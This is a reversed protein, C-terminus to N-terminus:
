AVVSAWTFGPSVTVTIPPGTPRIAAYEASILPADRTNRTSRTGGPQPQSLLDASYRDVQVVSVRGLLDLVLGAPFARVLADVRDAELGGHM